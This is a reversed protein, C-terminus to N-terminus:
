FLLNSLFSFLVNFIDSLPFCFRTKADEYLFYSSINLVHALSYATGRAPKLLRMFVARNNNNKVVSVENVAFSHYKM